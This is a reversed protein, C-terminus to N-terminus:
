IGETLVDTKLCLLEFIEVAFIYGMYFTFMYSFAVLASILFYKLM